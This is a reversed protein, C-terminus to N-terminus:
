SDFNHETGFMSEFEKLADRHYKYVIRESVSMEDMIEKFQMLKVYRYYLVKYHKTELQEMQEVIKNRRRLLVCLLESIRKEEDLYEAVTASFRDQASTRVRDKSYDIGKGLLTSRLYEVREQKAKIVADLKEVQRLYTQTNM